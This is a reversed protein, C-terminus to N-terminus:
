IIYGDGSDAIPEVESNFVYNKLKYTDTYCYITQNVLGTYTYFRVTVIDKELAVFPRFDMPKTKLWIWNDRQQRFQECESMEFIECSGMDWGFLKSFDWPDSGLIIHCSWVVGHMSAGFEAIERAFLSAYFYSHLSGDGEIADMINELGETPRILINEGGVTLGDLCSDEIPFPRPLSFLDILESKKDDYTEPMAWVNGISGESCEYPFAKLTFGPKLHLLDFVLLLSLPDEAQRAKDILPFIDKMELYIQKNMPEQRNERKNEEVGEPKTEGQRIGLLVGIWFFLFPIILLLTGSFLVLAWSWEIYGLLKLLILVVPAIRAIPALFLMLYGAGIITSGALNSRSIRLGMNYQGKGRKVM